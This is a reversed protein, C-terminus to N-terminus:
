AAMIDAATTNVMFMQLYKDEMIFSKLKHPWGLSLIDYMIDIIGMLWAM